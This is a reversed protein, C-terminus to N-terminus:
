KHISYNKGVKEFEEGTIKGSKGFYGNIKYKEMFLGGKRITKVYLLM